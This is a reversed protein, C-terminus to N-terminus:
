DSPHRQDLVTPKTGCQRLCHESATQTDPRKRDAIYKRTTTIFVHGAQAAVTKLDVGSNLLTSIYSRRFDQPSFSEVGARHAREELIWAIAKDSLPRIQPQSSKSLPTFLRGPIRGRVTLWKSLSEAANNGVFLRHEKKNKGRYVTIERTQQAYDELNLNIVESRKLGTSHLLGILAADRRGAPRPDKACAEFLKSLNGRILIRSARSSKGRIPPIDCTIKVISADMYGLSSCCKLVGRVATVIRNVTAPAYNCHYESRLFHSLMNMHHQRLKHWPLQNANSGGGSLICAAVELAIRM